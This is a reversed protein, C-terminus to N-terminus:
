VERSVQFIGKGQEPIKRKLSTPDYLCLSADRKLQKGVSPKSFNLQMWSQPDIKAGRPVYWQKRKSTSASAGDHDKTSSLVAYALASLHHCHGQM